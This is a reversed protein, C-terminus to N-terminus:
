MSCLDIVVGLHPLVRPMRVQCVGPVHFVGQRQVLQIPVHMHAGVVAWVVGEAGCGSLLYCVNATISIGM